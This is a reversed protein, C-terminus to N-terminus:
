FFNQNKQTDVRSFYDKTKQRVLKGFFLLAILNPFVMLGNAFDSTNWVIGLYKGQLVAGLATTIAVFLRLSTYSKNPFLYRFGQESFYAFALITSFGFIVSCLSVAVSSLSSGLGLAFSSKTLAVSTLDSNEYLGGLVIIFGTMSCVVITDIFNGLMAILAQPVDEKGKAVAAPIAASGTGAENSLVGRSVGLQLASKISYGMAGGAASEFRFAEELILSFVEPIASFNSLVTFIALGVYVFIMVPVLTESVRAIRKLGGFLIFAILLFLVCASIYKSVGFESQLALAISNSQAMNGSGISGVLMIAVAYWAALFKAGPLKGKLAEIYYMPGGYYHGNQEKRFHRGLLAEAYKTSMGLLASIWMWFIAGPGGTAIATAVGAINGNGVTGALATMLAAFPSIEGNGDVKKSQALLRFSFILRSFQIGGTMYTMLLGVVFLLLILLPWWIGAALQGTIQLLGDLIQNM